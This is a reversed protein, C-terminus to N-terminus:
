SVPLKDSDSAYFNRANFDGLRFRGFRDAIWRGAVM